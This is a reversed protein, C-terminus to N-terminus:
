FAGHFGVGGLGVSAGVSVKAASRADADRPLIRSNSQSAQTPAVFIAVLGMLASAGGLIFTVTSVTGWRKASDLADYDEPGCIKSTCTSALSSKASLAVLGTVIGAAVGVGGAVFGATALGNPRRRPEDVRAGSGVAVPALSSPGAVLPLSVTKSEGSAVEIAVRTERGDGIRAVIDHHGPNVARLEGLAANPILAGDVIVTPEFGVPVGSVQLRVSSFKSTMEDAVRAADRRADASRSTEGVLPPIRGVGLCVERAEVPQSLLAHLKCLEIGTLPTNGLAHAARFKELAGRLDGKERLDIGENYLQRASAIDSAGRQASAPAAHGTVAIFVMGVAAVRLNRPLSSFTM